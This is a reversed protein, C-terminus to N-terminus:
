ATKFGWYKKNGFMEIQVLIWAYGSRGFVNSCYGSSSSLWEEEEHQHHRRHHCRHHDEEEEQQQQQQQVADVM